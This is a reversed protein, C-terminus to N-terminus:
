FHPAERKSCTNFYVSQLRAVLGKLTITVLDISEVVEGIDGLKDTLDKIRSIFKSVGENVEM